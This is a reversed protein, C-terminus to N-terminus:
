QYDNQKLHSRNKKFFPDYRSSVASHRRGASATRFAEDLARYDSAQKGRFILSEPRLM